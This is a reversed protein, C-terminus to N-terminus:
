TKILNSDKESGKNNKIHAKATASIHLGQHCIGDHCTETVYAGNFSQVAEAQSLKSSNM